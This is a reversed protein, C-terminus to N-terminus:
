RSRLWRQPSAGDKGNKFSHLVKEKWNAGKTKPPSLESSLEATSTSRRTALQRLRRRLETAGYLNGQTDFVLDGIPLQGDNGGQFNYLVTETWAGGKTQPPKLQYVVGCGVRSGFLMCNGTGDYGTAGYLNGAQDWVLGSFPSAGDSGDSGKFVWLVTETWPDGQKAPPQLQYVTGCQFPGRCSSAGGDTTAGYLNGQKDFVVGGAPVAGDNGGQFSYLM